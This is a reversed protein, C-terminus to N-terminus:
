KKDHSYRSFGLWANDLEEQRHDELGYSLAMKEKEVQLDKVQKQLKELQATQTDLMEKMAIYAPNAKIDEVGRDEAVNGQPTTEPEPSQGNSLQGDNDM